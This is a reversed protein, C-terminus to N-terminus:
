KKPNTQQFIQPFKYEEQNPHDGPWGNIHGLEHCVHRAYSEEKYACPNPVVMLNLFPSACGKYMLGPPPSIGVMEYCLENRIDNNQIFVITSKQDERYEVPPIVSMFGAVLMELLM